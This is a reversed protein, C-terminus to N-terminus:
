LLWIQRLHLKMWLLLLRIRFDFRLSIETFNRQFSVQDQGAPRGSTVNAFLAIVDPYIDVGYSYDWNYLHANSTGRTFERPVSQGFYVETFDFRTAASTPLQKPQGDFTTYSQVDSVFDPWDFVNGGAFSSYDMPQGVLGGVTVVYALQETALKSSFYSCASGCTGDSLLIIKDM